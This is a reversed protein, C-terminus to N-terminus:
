QHPPRRGSEADFHWLTTRRLRIVHPSGDVHLNGRDIQIDGLVHETLREGGNNQQKASEVWRNLARSVPTVVYGSLTGHRIRRSLYADLGFTKDTAFTNLTAAFIGVLLFESGVETDLEVGGHESNARDKIQTIILWRNL